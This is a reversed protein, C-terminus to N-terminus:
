WVRLGNGSLVKSRGAFSDPFDEMFVTCSLLCVHGYNVIEEWCIRWQSFFKWRKRKREKTSGFSIVKNNIIIHMDDDLVVFPLSVRHGSSWYSRIHAETTRSIAAAAHIERAKKDVFQDGSSLTNCHKRLRWNVLFPSIQAVAALRSLKERTFYIM